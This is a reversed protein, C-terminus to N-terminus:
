AAEPRPNDPTYSVMGGTVDVTHGCPGKVPGAITLDECTRGQRSHLSDTVVPTKGDIPNRFWVTMRKGDCGCNCVPCDFVVGEGNRGLELVTFAARLTNLPRTQM